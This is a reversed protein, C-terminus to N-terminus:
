LLSLNSSPLLTPSQPSMTTQTGLLTSSVTISRTQLFTAYCLSAFMYVWWVCMGCVCWMCVYVGVGCMCVCICVWVCMCVICTCMCMCMCMCVCVCVCCVKVHTTLSSKTRKATSTCQSWLCPCPFSPISSIHTFVVHCFLGTWTDASSHTCTYLILLLHLLCM